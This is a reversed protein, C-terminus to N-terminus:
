KSREKGEDDGIVCRSWGGSVWCRRRNKYSVIVAVRGGRPRVVVVKRDKQYICNAGKEKAWFVVARICENQKCAREEQIGSAGLILYCARRTGTKRKQKM